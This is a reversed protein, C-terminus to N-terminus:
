QGVPLGEPQGVVVFALEDPRLWEAAVRAVDETTVAEILDNRIDPYDRGLSEQQLGVLIRAIDGNSDFRLPYAGTLYRKATELEAESVGEEAMRRWEERIVELSEAVRENATGVGGLWVGARDLPALYSYTSYALGRKERVEETLRSSFGGGGLIYNMVYAPIFDPHDREPGAHGFLVTSQPADFPVVTVGGEAQAETEARETAPTRPLGELLRDLAPGLAEASIDGSVGIAATDLNLLRERAAELDDADIAAVSELAGEVPRGYPDDPFAAGFWADSALAGPDSMDQRIGSLIQGRVRRMPEEDFRPETLALNLLDLSEELNEVLVRASVSFGDRGADFGFRAGLRQAEAAFGTADLEGAGEELMGALFHAVGLKDEPDLSAGGEFAIELAVMPIAEEEVLWAATGEPSEVEQIPVAALAPWGLAAALAAGTAFRAIM